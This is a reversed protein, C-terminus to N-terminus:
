DRSTNKYFLYEQLIEDIDNENPTFEPTIDNCLWAFYDTIAEIFSILIEELSSYETRVPLRIEPINDKNDFVPYSSFESWFFQYGVRQKDSNVLYHKYEFDVWLTVPINFNTEVWKTFLRLEKQVKPAINKDFGIDFGPVIDNSTQIHVNKAKIWLNSSKM